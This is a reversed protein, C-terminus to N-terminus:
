ATAFGLDVAIEVAVPSWTLDSVWDDRLEDRVKRYAESQMGNDTPIHHLRQCQMGFRDTWVELEFTGEVGDVVATKGDLFVNIENLKSMDMTTKCFNKM